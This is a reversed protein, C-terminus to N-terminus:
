LLYHFAMVQSWSKIKDWKILLLHYQLLKKFYQKRLDNAGRKIIIGEWDLEKNIENM